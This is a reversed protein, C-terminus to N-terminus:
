RTARELRIFPRPPMLVVLAVVLCVGLAFLGGVIGIVGLAIDLSDQPILADLGLGNAWDPFTHLWRWALWALGTMSAGFLGLALDIWQLEFRPTQATNRIRSMIAPALGTPVPALPYTRIADAIADVEGHKSEDWGNM